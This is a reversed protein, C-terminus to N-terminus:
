SHAHVIRAVVEEEPTWTDEPKAFLLTAIELVIKANRAAQKNVEEGLLTKCQPCRLRDVKTLDKVRNKQGCNCVVIV